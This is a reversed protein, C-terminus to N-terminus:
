KDVTFSANNLQAITSVGLDATNFVSDGVPLNIVHTGVIFRKSKSGPDRHASGTSALVGTSANYDITIVINWEQLVHGSDQPDLQQDKWTGVWPPTPAPFSPFNPKLSAM